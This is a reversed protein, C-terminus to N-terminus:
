LLGPGRSLVKKKAESLKRKSMNHVWTTGVNTDKASDKGSRKGLNGFKRVQRKKWTDFVADTKKACISTVKAFDEETMVAELKQKYNEACTKAPEKM